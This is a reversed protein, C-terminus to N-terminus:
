DIKKVCIYSQKRRMLLVLITCDGQNLMLPSSFPRPYQMFNTAITHCYSNDVQEM